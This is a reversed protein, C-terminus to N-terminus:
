QRVGKFQPDAEVSAGAKDMWEDYNIVFDGVSIREPIVALATFHDKNLCAICYYVRGTEPIMQVALTLEGKQAAEVIAEMDRIVDRPVGRRREEEVRAVLQEKTLAM